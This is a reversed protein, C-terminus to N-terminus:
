LDYNEERHGDMCSVCIKEGMINYYYADTIPEGCEDCIPNDKYDDLRDEDTRYHNYRDIM